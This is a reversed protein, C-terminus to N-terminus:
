QVAQPVEEQPPVAEVPAVAEVPTTPETPAQNETAPPASTGETVPRRSRDAASFVVLEQEGQKNTMITYIPFDNLEEPSFARKQEIEVLVSENINPNLADAMKLLQPTISTRQQTSFLTLAIWIIVTVLTFIFIKLFTQKQQLQALQTKM